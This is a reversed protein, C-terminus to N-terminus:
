LSLDEKAPEAKTEATNEESQKITNIASTPFFEGNYPAKGIFDPHRPSLAITFDKGIDEKSVSIHKNKNFSTAIIKQQKDELILYRQKNRLGTDLLTYTQLDYRPKINKTITGGKDEFAKMQEALEESTVKNPM